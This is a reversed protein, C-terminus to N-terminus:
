CKNIKGAILCNIKELEKILKRLRTNEQLVEILLQKDDLNKCIKKKQKVKEKKILLDQENLLDLYYSCM